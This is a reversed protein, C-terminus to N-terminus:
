HICDNNDDSNLIHPLIMKSFESLFSKIHKESNMWGM